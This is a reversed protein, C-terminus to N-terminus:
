SHKSFEKIVFNDFTKKPLLAALMPTTFADNSTRYVAKPKSDTISDVMM